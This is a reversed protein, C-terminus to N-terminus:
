NTKRQEREATTKVADAGEATKAAMTDKVEKLKEGAREQAAAAKDEIPKEEAPVDKSVADKLKNMGKTIADAGKALGQSATVKVNDLTSRENTTNTNTNESTM